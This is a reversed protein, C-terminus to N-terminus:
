PCATLRQESHQRQVGNLTSKSSPWHGSGLESFDKPLTHLTSTETKNCFHVSAQYKTQQHHLIHHPQIGLKLIVVVPLLLNDFHCPRLPPIEDDGISQICDASAGIVPDVIIKYVEMELAQIGCIFVGCDQNAVNTFVCHYTSCSECNKSPSIM